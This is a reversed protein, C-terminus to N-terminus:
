SNGRQKKRKSRLKDLMQQLRDLEDLTPVKSNLLAAVMELNDGGFVRKIINRVIRRYAPRTSRAPRYVFAKGVPGKRRAVLGRAELRKLLTVVSGHAMPRYSHLAERVQRATARRRRWLCALVDLEADPPQGDTLVTSKSSRHHKVM